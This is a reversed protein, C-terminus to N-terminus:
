RKRGRSTTSMPRPKHQVFGGKPSNFNQALNVQQTALKQKKLHELMELQAAENDSVKPTSNTM